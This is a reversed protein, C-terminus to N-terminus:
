KQLDMIIKKIDDCTLNKHKKKHLTHEKNMDLIKKKICACDEGILLMYEITKNYNSINERHKKCIACKGEDFILKNKEEMKLLLKSNFLNQAQKPLVLCAYINSPIPISEPIPEYGIKDECTLLYQLVGIPHPSLKYKYMYDYDCYSGSKYCGICWMIGKLYNDYILPNYSTISFKNIFGMNEISSSLSMMFDRFFITDIKGEINILGSRRKIVTLKYSKVIKDFGSYYLKPIYDNGMLLMITGVDLNPCEVYKNNTDIIANVFEGVNFLHLNHKLKIAVYVNNYCKLFSSMVCVDADNSVILHKDSSDINNNILLQKILKFEAEDPGDFLLNIKINYRDKLVNMYDNLYVSLNDMFTTGPTFCLSNITDKGIEGKIDRVTAIRRERQLLLKAYPAPGDSAFTISKIPIIGTLITDILNYLKNLLVELTNSKNVAIHLCFNIDIYLHDVSVDNNLIPSANPYNNNIWTHFGQIGM